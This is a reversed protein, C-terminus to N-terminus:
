SGGSRALTNAIVSRRWNVLVVVPIMLLSTRAIFQTTAGDELLGPIAFYGFFIATVVYPSMGTARIWQRVDGDSAAVRIPVYEYLNALNMFLFWFTLYAAPPQRRAAVV